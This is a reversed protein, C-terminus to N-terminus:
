VKLFRPLSVAMRWAGNSDLYFYVSRGTDYYVSTDPYYRYHHKVRLGHAKAHPPPGHKIQPHAPPTSDSYVVRGSGGQATLLCGSLPLSLLLLFLLLTLKHNSKM